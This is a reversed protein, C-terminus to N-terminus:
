VNIQIGWIFYIQLELDLFRPYDQHWRTTVKYFQPLSCHKHISQLDLTLASSNLVSFDSTDGVDSFYKVM